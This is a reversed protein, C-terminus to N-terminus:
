MVRHNDQSALSNGHLYSMLWGLYHKNEILESQRIHLSFISKMFLNSLVEGYMSDFWAGCDGRRHTM